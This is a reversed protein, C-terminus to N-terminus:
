YAAIRRSCYLEILDFALRPIGQKAEHSQGPVSELRVKLDVLLPQRIRDIRFKAKKLQAQLENGLMTRDHDWSKIIEIGATILPNSQLEDWRRDLYRIGSNKFDAVVASVMDRTGDVSGDCQYTMGSAPVSDTGAKLAILDIHPNILGNNYIPNLTHVPNLRSSVSAQMVRDNFSYVLHLMERLDYDGFDRRRQFHFVGTAFTFFRFDPQELKMQRVLLPKLESKRLSRSPLTETEM